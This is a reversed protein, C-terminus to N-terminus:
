SEFEIEVVLGFHDSVPPEDLCLAPPTAVTLPGRLFVQTLRRDPRHWPVYRAWMNRATSMTAIGDTVGDAVERFGASDLLDFGTPGKAPFEYGVSMNFDGAIVIPGPAPVTRLMHRVQITRVRADRPSTGAYLHVNALHVPGDPTALTTWMWGKRGIKEDPKMGAVRHAPIFASHTIPWRSFTALGGAADMILPGLRRRQAHYGDVHFGSLRAAVQRSYAPRFVEQLLVIDANMAPLRELLDNLRHTRDTFPLTVPLDWINLSLLRITLM